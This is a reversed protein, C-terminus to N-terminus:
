ARLLPSALLNELYARAAGAEAGPIDEVAMVYEIAARAGAITAPPTCCLADLAEEEASNAAEFAAPDAWCDEIRRLANLQLRHQAIAGFQTPSHPTSKPCKDTKRKDPVAPARSV